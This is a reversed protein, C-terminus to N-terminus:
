LLADQVPQAKAGVAWRFGKWVVSVGGRQVTESFLEPLAKLDLGAPAYLRLTAVEGDSPLPDGQKLCARTATFQATGDGDLDWTLRLGRKLKTVAHDLRILEAMTEGLPRGDSSIV